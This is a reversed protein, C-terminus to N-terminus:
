DPSLGGSPCGDGGRAPTRPEEGDPDCGDLFCHWSLQLGSQVIAEMWASPQRDIAPIGAIVSRPNWGAGSVGGYQSPKTTGLMNKNMWSDWSWKPATKRSLWDVM